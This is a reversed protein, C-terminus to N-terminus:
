ADSISPLRQPYIRFAFPLLTTAFVCFAVVGHFFNIDSPIRTRIDFYRQYVVLICHRPELMPMMVIDVDKDTVLYLRRRGEINRVPTFCETQILFLFAFVETSCPSLVTSVNFPM